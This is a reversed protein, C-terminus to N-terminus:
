LQSMAFNTLSVGTGALMATIKKILLRVRVFNVNFDNKWTNTKITMRVFQSKQVSHENKAVQLSVNKAFIRQSKLSLNISVQHNGHVKVIKKIHVVKRQCRPNIVGWIMLVLNEFKLNKKENHIMPLNDCLKVIQKNHAKELTASVKEFAIGIRKLEACKYRKHHLSPFEVENAAMNKFDIAQEVKICLHSPELTRWKQVVTKEQIIRFM